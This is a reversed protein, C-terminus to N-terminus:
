TRLKIKDKAKKILSTATRANIGMERLKVANVDALAKVTTINNDKLIKLNAPTIGEITSVPKGGELIPQVDRRIKALDSLGKELEVFRAESNTKEQKLSTIENKLSTVEQKATLKDAELTTFRTEVKDKEQTLTTVKGELVIVKETKQKLGTIEDKLITVELDAKLKDAEIQKFRTEAETKQENLTVIKSELLTVKEQRKFAEFDIAEVKEVLQANGIDKTKPPVFVGPKYRYELMVLEKFDNKDKYGAGVLNTMGIKALKQGQTTLETVVNAQDANLIAKSMGLQQTSISIEQPDRQKIFNPLVLCCFEEVLWSVLPAIPILSLWYALTPFSKVYKRKTFNCINNVQNDELSLCGLYVKDDEDCEPCEILLHHCFCDKLYQILGSLLGYFAVIVENRYKGLADREKQYTPLEYTLATISQGLHNLVFIQQASDYAIIEVPGAQIPISTLLKKEKQKPNGPIYQLDHMAYRSAVVGDLQDSKVYQLSIHGAEGFSHYKAGIWSGGKEETKKLHISEFRCLAKIDSKEVENIVLYLVSDSAGLTLRNADVTTKSQALAFGDYGHVQQDNVELGLTVMNKQEDLSTGNFIVIRNYYGNECSPSSKSQRINKSTEFATAFVQNTKIDFAMHGSASFPWDPEKEIKERNFLDELELLYVGKCLATAYLQKNSWPSLELQVVKVGCIFSTQWEIKLQCKDLANVDLKGRALLTDEQHIIASLYINNDADIALDTITGNELQPVEAYALLDGICGEGLQEFVFIRSSDRKWGFLFKGNPHLRVHDLIEPTFWTARCVKEDKFPYEPFDNHSFQACFTKSSLHIKLKDYLDKLLAHECPSVNLITEQENSTKHFLLNTLALTRRKIPKIQEHGCKTKACRAQIDTDDIDGKLTNILDLICDNYFDFLLTDKLRELLTPKDQELLEVGVGLTQEETHELFLCVGQDEDLTQPDINAEELIKLINVPRDEKIVMDRGDCDLAYGSRLIVTDPNDFDCDVALGCVIGWGHLHKNHWPLDNEQCLHDLADQVTTVEPMNCENNDFCIDDARLDTLSPFQASKCANYVDCESGAPLSMTEDVVDVLLMYHHAEGEPPKGSGAEGELLVEGQQHVSERVPATWFDGSILAHDSLELNLTIVRLEVQVADGGQTVHGPKGAGIGLSLDISGEFGSVLQWNAGSKELRCWGDWRRVCTKADSSTALFTEVLQHRNGDIVRQNSGDRALHVGLRKETVDDFFEYVYQNSSFDPPVDSTKYAEAGNESSWKLVVADPQNNEDYHIDHVEVRFLYNGVPDNLELEDACPDCPDASTALSRLVLRLLADGIPPNVDPCLPDTEIDCWKVQAVTQTRTTTDAGHLGPDRLVEDELWIVTRDWVDVYLRYGSADDPLEPGDPGMPYYLQHQYDFVNADPASEDARVEAPVGDVYVRGGDDGWHLSPVLEDGVKIVQLLADHRPTGSGIVDRLAQNLRDRSLLAQETLDSDTLMRGQQHCVSSYNKFVQRSNRSIQTKM